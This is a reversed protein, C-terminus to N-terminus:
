PVPVTHLWSARHQLQEEEAEDMLWLECTDAPALQPTLNFRMLEDRRFAHVPVSGNASVQAILQELNQATARIGDIAVIVDGTSLGAKQAAGNDLVTKLKAAGGKNSVTAGLVSHAPEDNKTTYKKIGGQDKASRAPRLRYGVGISHFLEKLFLDETGRLAHDFFEVLDLGTTDAALQEIGDEPVGIDYQGYKSWLGQMLDDLSKVGETHRRITIDLTMAILAGKTYYSVIANPANEDQQYFKTWADFSSETVSQKLRGSNRQVRTITQALLELYSNSSIVGSRVLALDDYYSTIGEFAWLLNSHVEHSLDADKFVQPRIRKVNWLHFYEHSCLGLFQRYGQTIKDVGIRPLDDRKCILSCSSRHELGGYGDGVAMVQFLYSEMAPLGGFLSAHYKCIAQLDKCLRDTDTQHRGTIAINHPVGAVDFTALTFTGMEVPNDILDAYSLAQYPGFEFCLAGASALTTAVRWDSYADGVPPKIDVQHPDTEKGLVRLFVSTGNFYGHTSDLHASRVSLDWAYVEYEVQLEGACPACLWTQKDTKEAVVTEEECTAKLTVINKAFDRIMYSGPIWAPLTLMQGKPDPKAIQLTVKFLHAEPSVPIIQYRIM